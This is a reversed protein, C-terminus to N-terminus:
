ACVEQSRRVEEHLRRRNGVMETDPCSIAQRMIQQGRAGAGIIGLRIRDNAGWLRAPDVLTGALGAAVGEVFNRRSHM